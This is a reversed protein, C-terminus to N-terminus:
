FLNMQGGPVRFAEYNMPTYPEYKLRAMHLKIMAAIQEYYVGRGNHREYFESKYLVGGRMTTTRNIVKEYKEPYTRNLWQLFVTKVSWPLRLPVYFAHKAGAERAAKLIAPVEHDNLGPIMPSVSVGVPVGAKALVAIAELRRTPSSARPEMSAALKPDLTTISLTATACRDKAMEGLLDADRTILHNKTIAGVPNRFAHMVEVVSRTIKLKRELPQYCDTVGSMAIAQPKWSRKSLTECLLEAARPKIFIKSEFDVGASLGLYEHSPRAFCYSCGHECGRYVNISCDFPVDPSDNTALISKTTDIFVQTRPGVREEEPLSDLYDGDHDFEVSEFRNAPNVEAGRGHIPLHVSM